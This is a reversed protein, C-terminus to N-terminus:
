PVLVDRVLAETMCPWAESCRSTSPPSVVHTGPLHGLPRLLLRSVHATRLGFVTHGTFGRPPHRSSFWWDRERSLKLPAIFIAMTQQWGEPTASSGEKMAHYGLNHRPCHSSARPSLWPGVRLTGICHEHNPTLPPRKKDCSRGSRCMFM